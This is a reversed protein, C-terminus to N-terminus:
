FWGSLRQGRLPLSDRQDPHIAARGPSRRESRSGERTRAGLRYRAGAAYPEEFQKSSRSVSAGVIGDMGNPFHVSYSLATEQGNQQWRPAATERWPSPAMPFM